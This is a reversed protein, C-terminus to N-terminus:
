LENSSIVEGGARTTLATLIVQDITESEFHASGDARLFHCGGPHYSSFTDDLTRQFFGEGPISGPGNIGLATSFLNFHNWWHGQHSGQEGGALEGIMLTNSTGDFVDRIRIPQINLLMGDGEIIPTGGEKGPEWGSRSDAVGGVNTKYIAIGIEHNTYANGTTGVWILEDQPDSPCLYQEIRKLGLDIQNPGYIGWIGNEAGYLNSLEVQELYALIRVAWGKAYYEELGLPNYYSHVYLEGLPFTGLAAHYNHMAIGIQKFHNSCQTRRAAERAAQVAPLLLAMLIAIIAIVVLLEVLTFAATRQRSRFQYGACM